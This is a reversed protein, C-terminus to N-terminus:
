KSRNQKIRPMYWQDMTATTLTSWMAPEKPEVERTGALVIILLIVQPSLEVNLSLTYVSVLLRSSAYAIQDHGDLYRTITLVEM